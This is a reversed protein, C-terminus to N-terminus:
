QKKLESDARPYYGDPDIKQLISAVKSQSHVHEWFYRQNEKMMRRRLGADEMLRKIQQMAENVTTFELYNRENTFNGPLTAEFREIVIPRCFAVYEAVRFGVSHHLGETAVCISHKPIQEIFQDRYGVKKGVAMLDPYVQAAYSGYFGATVTKESYDSRLRSIIAARLENVRRFQESTQPAELHSGDWARTLFLIKQEGDIEQLQGLQSLLLSVNKGMASFPLSRIFSKLRMKPSRALRMAYAMHLPEYMSRRVPLILGYSIIKPSKAHLSSNYSRKFYFDFEALKDEIIFASDHFDCFVKKGNSFHLEATNVLYDPMDVPLKEIAAAPPAVASEVFKLKGMRRFADLGACLELVAPYPEDPHLIVRCELM